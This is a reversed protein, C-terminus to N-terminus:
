TSYHQCGQAYPAVLTRRLFGGRLSQSAPVPPKSLDMYRFCKLFTFLVYFKPYLAHAHQMTTVAPRSCTKPPRSARGAPGCEPSQRSVNGEYRYARADSLANDEM